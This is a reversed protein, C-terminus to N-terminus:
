CERDSVTIPRKSAKLEKCLQVMALAAWFMWDLFAISYDRLESDKNHRIAYKNAIQFLSENDKEAPTGKLVTYRDPELVAMLERIASVKDERTSQRSRYLAIAHSVQDTLQRTPQEVARLLLDARADDTITVLRGIDEGETALRFPLNTADLLENVRIRYLMQGTRLAHNSYHYGCQSYEHYYRNRPRAAIDHLLEVLDCFEDDGWRDAEPYSLPPPQQGYLDALKEVLGVELEDNPDICGDPYEEGFYGSAQWRAIFTSFRDKAAAWDPESTSHEEERHSSSNRRSFYPRRTAPTRLEDARRVLESVVPVDDQASEFSSPWTSRADGTWDLMGKRASYETAPVSGAFAEELLFAYDAHFSRREREARMMSTAETIFVERPWTLTFEPDTLDM